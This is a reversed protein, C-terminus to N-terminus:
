LAFSLHEANRTKVLHIEFWAIAILDGVRDHRSSIGTVVEQHQAGDKVILSLKFM